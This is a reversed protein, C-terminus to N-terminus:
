EPPTFKVTSKLPPPEPPPPPPPQDKDLPPPAELVVEVNKVEKVEKPVLAEIYNVIVPASIALTFFVIAFIIGKVTYDDSKKRLEYAGYEHNRGKFVIDVWNNDFINIKGLAM